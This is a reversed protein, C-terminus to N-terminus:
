GGGSTNTPANGLGEILAALQKWANGHETFDKKAQLDKLQLSVDNLVDRLENLAQVAQTMESEM